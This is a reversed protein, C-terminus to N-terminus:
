GLLIVCGWVLFDGDGFEVVLLLCWGDGFLNKIYEVFVSILFVLLGNDLVFIVFLGYFYGVFEVVIICLTGIGVGVVLICVREGYIFMLIDIDYFFDQYWSCWGVVYCKYIM